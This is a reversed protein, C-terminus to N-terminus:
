KKVGKTKRKSVKRSIKGDAKKTKTRSNNVLSFSFPKIKMGKAEREDKNQIKYKLM